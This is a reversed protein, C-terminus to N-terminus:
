VVEKLLEHDAAPAPGQEIMTVARMPCARVCVGCGTCRDEDVIWGAAGPYSGGERPIVAGTPCHRRVPCTPSRDCLAADIKALYM